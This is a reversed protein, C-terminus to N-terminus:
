NVKNFNEILYQAVGRVPYEIPSNNSSGTKRYELNIGAKRWRGLTASSKGIIKCVNKESLIRSGYEKIILNVEERIMESENM